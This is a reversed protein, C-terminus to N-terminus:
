QQCSRQEPLPCLRHRVQQAGRTLQRLEQHDAGWDLPLGFVESVVAQVFRLRAEGHVPELMLWKAFVSGCPVLYPGPTAAYPWPAADFGQATM